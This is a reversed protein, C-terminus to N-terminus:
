LTGRCGALGEEEEVRGVGAGRTAAGVVVSAEGVAGLLATTGVDLSATGVVGPGDPGVDGDPGLFLGLVRFMMERSGEKTSDESGM